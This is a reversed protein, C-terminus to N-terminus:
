KCGTACYTEEWAALARDSNESNDETLVTAITRDLLLVSGDGGLKLGAPRMGHDEALKFARRIEADPAYRLSRRRARGAHPPSPRDDAIMQHGGRLRLAPRRRRM